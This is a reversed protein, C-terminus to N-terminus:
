NNDLYNFHRNLKLYIFNFSSGQYSLQYLIWRCHLLGWNSQQIPFIGQVLANCGVGTNKSPSDGPVFSGPPGSYVTNCLTSCSQIVLCLLHGKPAEWTASATFFGGAFAPSLSVYM